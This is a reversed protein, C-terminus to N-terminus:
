AHTTKQRKCSPHMSSSAQVPDVPADEEQKTCVASQIRLVLIDLACRKLKLGAMMGMTPTSLESEDKYTATWRTALARIRASIDGNNLRKRTFEVIDTCEAGWDAVVPMFHSMVAASVCATWCFQNKETGNHKEFGPELKWAYPEGVLTRLNLVLNEFSMLASWPPGSFTGLISLCVKGEPYLNPHVRPANRPNVFTVRPPCHPYDVTRVDIEFLFAADEYPTDSGGRVYVRFRGSQTAEPNVVCYGSEEWGSSRVLNRYDRIFRKSLQSM